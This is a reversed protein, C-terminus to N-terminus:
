LQSSDLRVMKARLVLLCNEVDDGVFDDVIFYDDLGDSRNRRSTPDRLDIACARYASLRDSDDASM